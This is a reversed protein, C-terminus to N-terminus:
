LLTRSAVSHPGFEFDGEWPASGDVVGDEGTCGLLALSLLGMKAVIVSVFREELQMEGVDPLIEGPCEDGEEIPVLTM